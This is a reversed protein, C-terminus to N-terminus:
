EKKHLTVLPLFVNEEDGFVMIKAMYVSGSLRKDNWIEMIIGNQVVFPPDEGELNPESWWVIDGVQIEQLKSSGFSENKLTEFHKKQKM